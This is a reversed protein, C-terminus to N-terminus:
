VGGEKYAPPLPQWAIVKFNDPNCYDEVEWVGDHIKGVCADIGQNGFFRDKYSVIVTVDDEPLRESCPIWGNNHEEVLKKVISVSNMYANMAGYADVDDFENWCKRNDEVFEELRGILKDIFEQMNM